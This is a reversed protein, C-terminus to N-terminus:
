RTGKPGRGLRGDILAAALRDLVADARRQRVTGAKVAADLDRKVEALIEESVIAYDLLGQPDFRGLKQRSRRLPM